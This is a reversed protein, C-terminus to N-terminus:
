IKLEVLFSHRSQYRPSLGLIGDAMTLGKSETTTQFRLDRICYHENLYQQESLVTPHDRTMNIQKLCVTDHFKFGELNASGYALPHNRKNTLQHTISLSKNYAVDTKTVKKTKKKGAKKELVPKGTTANFVTKPGM